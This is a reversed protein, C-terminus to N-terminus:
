RIFAGCGERLVPSATITEPDATEGATSGHRVAKVFM